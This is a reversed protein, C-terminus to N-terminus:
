HKSINLTEVEGKSRFKKSLFGGFLCFSVTDLHKFLLYNTFSLYPSYPPHLFTEYGLDAFKQLTMRTIDLSSHWPAFNYGSKFEHLFFFFFFFFFILTNSRKEHEHNPAYLMGFWIRFSTIFFVSLCPAKIMLFTFRKIFSTNFYYRLVSNM